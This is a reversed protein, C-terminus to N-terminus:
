SNKIIVNKKFMIEEKDDIWDDRFFLEFTKQQPKLNNAAIKLTIEYHYNPFLIQEGSYPKIATDLMFVVDSSERIKFRSKELHKSEEIFGLVCFKYLGPQIKPMIEMPLNPNIPNRYHSWALNLPLFQEEKEFRGDSRKKKLEVAMVEVDEMQHNGKNKVKFRFYYTNYGGQTPVSHCYPSKLEFEIKLEPKYFWSRIWNQFIAIFGLFLVSFITIFIAVWEPNCYWNQNNM